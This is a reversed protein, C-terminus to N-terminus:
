YIFSGLFGQYEVVVHFCSQPLFKFGSMECIWLGRWFINVILVEKSLAQIYSPNNPKVANQAQL